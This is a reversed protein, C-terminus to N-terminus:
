RVMRMLDPNGHWLDVYSANKLEDSSFLTPRQSSNHLIETKEGALCVVPKYVRGVLWYYLFEFWIDNFGGRDMPTAGVLFYNNWCEFAQVAAMAYCCDNIMIFDGRHRALTM